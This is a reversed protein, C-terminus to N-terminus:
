HGTAVSGSSGPTPLEEREVTTWELVLSYGVALLTPGLFVGILGFAIVGGVFGFLSLLIPLNSSKGILYPRLINDITSVLLLGWLAVFIGWGVSGKAFLWVAVSGWILPPGIPAFSLVFTLFGLLLVLPVGAIWFGIAALIGQALATGILGYVVGKVTSGAVRLLRRARMGAFCDLAERAHAAMTQGHRYFFFAIFVSLGLEFLGSGVRKGGAVAFDAAPIILSKLDNIFVPSNHALSEWYTALTKGVIPIEAIWTPPTPLGHQLSRAAAPVLGRASDALSAVVLALPAVLVLTILLTMLGAALGKRSTVKRELWGYIPWTSFCIVAAWLIASLFPLLVVICGLALLVLIGSGVLKEIPKGLPTM